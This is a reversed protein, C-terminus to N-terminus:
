SATKFFMIIHSVEPLAVGTVRSSVSELALEVNLSRPLLLTEALSKISNANDGYDVLRVETGDTATNINHFATFAM